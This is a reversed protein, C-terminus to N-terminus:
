HEKHFVDPLQIYNDILVKTTYEQKSICASIIADFTSKGAESYGTSLITEGMQFKMSQSLQLTFTKRKVKTQKITFSNNINFQKTELHSEYENVLPELLYHDKILRLCRITINIINDIQNIPSSLYHNIPIVFFLYNVSNLNYL